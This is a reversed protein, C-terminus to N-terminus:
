FGSGPQQLFAVEKATSARGIAANRHPFRGFQEIIERHRVAYRYMGHTETFADLPEILRCATVQDERVESHEFPLYVFLREAPLMASDHDAAVAHRAADLALADAAFARASGRFMNRPFQDLLVILALCDGPMIKWAGLGADAGQEYLPMFRTRIDDDIAANKEFWLKRSRGYEVGEGFWYTLVEAARADGTTVM